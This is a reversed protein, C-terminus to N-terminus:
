PNCLPCWAADALIASPRKRREERHDCRACAHVEAQILDTPSGCDRCPLGRVQEVLGFGPAACAPCLRAVRLALAKATQKIARMRTPNLHARMDTQVFARGTASHTGMAHIAEQLVEATDIGKVAVFGGESKEPRVILGQEPFGVRALFASLNDSPAVVTSACNAHTRRQAVIERGDEADLLLMLEVGSPLVPIVPHPGFAGESGLGFRTGTRAIALRAKTRATELMSGEREIEGTFTGLADTDVGEAREVRVDFWQAFIPAIVREKGHMTAIAARLGSYPHSSGRTV